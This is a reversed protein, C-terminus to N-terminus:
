RMPPTSSRPPPATTRSWGAAAAGAPFGDRFQQLNEVRAGRWRYISQDDDGVVFPAGSSGVLLRIWAYQIANTDQFEDVLVHRFRARYHQLLEPQDRWLEYARLLLEAFDIVGSRECTQEYDGYLKLM